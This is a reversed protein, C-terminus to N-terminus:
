KGIFGFIKLNACAKTSNLALVTLTMSKQHIGGSTFTANGLKSTQNVSVLVQTIYVPREYKSPFKEFYISLNRPQISERACKRAIKVIRDGQFSITM